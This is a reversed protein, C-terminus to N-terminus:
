GTIKVAMTVNGEWRHRTREFTRGGRRQASVSFVPRLTRNGGGGGGGGGGGWCWEKKRKKKKKKKKSCSM